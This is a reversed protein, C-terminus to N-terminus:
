NIETVPTSCNIYFPWVKVTKFKRNSSCNKKKKKNNYFLDYHDRVLQWRQAALDIIIIDESVTQVRTHQVHQLSKM